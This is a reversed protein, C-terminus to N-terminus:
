PKGQLSNSWVQRLTAQQATPSPWPHQPLCGRGPAQTDIGGSHPRLPVHVSNRRAPGLGLAVLALVEAARSGWTAEM